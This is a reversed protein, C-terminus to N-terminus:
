HLLRVFADEVARADAVGAHLYRVVGAKDIIVTTPLAFAVYSRRIQDGNDLAIPYDLKEAAVFEKVLPAEESTLAIIRLGQKAYQKHWRRLDPFQMTCPGCWTAWFEVLVVQGRLDALKIPAGALMTATFPPAPKDLLSTVLMRDESPRAKLTATLALENGARKVTIAVHSDVPSAAIRKTVEASDKAVTGDLAVIEDGPQVGAAQAPSGEMVMAVRLSSPAFLVGLWAPLKRKEVTIGAVNPGALQAAPPEAFSPEYAITSRVAFRKGDSEIAWREEIMRLVYSQEDIWLTVAHAGNRARIRYCSHGSIPERGDLALESRGFPAAGFLLHPIWMTVGLSASQAEELPLAPDADEQVVSPREASFTFTRGASKWISVKPERFMVHFNPRVFATTFTKQLSESEGQPAHLEIRAKGRDVYSAANTYAAIMRDVIQTASLSRSPTQTGACACVIALVLIRM